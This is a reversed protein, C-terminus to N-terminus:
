MYALPPALITLFARPHLLSPCRGTFLLTYLASFFEIVLFFYVNPKSDNMSGRGVREGEQNSGTPRSVHALKCLLTTITHFRVEEEPTFDNVINFLKRIEEPSKGKIMNAVTKCGVDRRIPTDAGLVDRSRDRLHFRFECSPNSISTIQLSSSRLSCRRTSLFLSKTGSALTLLVNAHSTRQPSM